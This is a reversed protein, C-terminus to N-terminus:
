ILDRRVGAPTIEMNIRWNAGRMSRPKEASASYFAENSTETASSTESQHPPTLRHTEASNRRTSMFKYLLPSPIPPPCNTHKPNHSCMTREEVLDLCSADAEVSFWLRVSKSTTLTLRISLLNILLLWILSPLTQGGM